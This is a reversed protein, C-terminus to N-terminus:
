WIVIFAFPPTATLPHRSDDGHTDASPARRGIFVDEM